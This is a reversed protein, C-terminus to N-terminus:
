GITKQCYQNNLFIYISLISLDIWQAIFDESDKMDECKVICLLGLNDLSQVDPELGSRYAKFILWALYNAIVNTNTTPFM